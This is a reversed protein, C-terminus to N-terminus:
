VVSKRDINVTSPVAQAERTNLNPYVVRCTPVITTSTFSIYAPTPDVAGNNDVARIFFSHTRFSRPESHEDRAFSDQDALVMFTTDSAATFRWPHLVAGTLPDTTLTDRPSIGDTGNNSIKWEYGVVLGDPDSGTWYLDVAFSAELLTPPQGTIRTDPRSNPLRVGDLDTNTSCGAAFFFLAIAVMAYFRRIM